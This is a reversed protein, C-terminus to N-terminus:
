KRRKKKKRCGNFAVQMQFLIGLYKLPYLKRTKRLSKRIAFRTSRQYVNKLKLIVRRIGLSWVKKFFLETVKVIAMYTTKDKNKFGSRGTSTWGKTRGEIDAVTFFVNSKYYSITLIYPYPSFTKKRAVWRKKVFNLTTNRKAANKKNHKKTQKNKNKLAIGM